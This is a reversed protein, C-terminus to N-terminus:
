QNWDAIANEHISNSHHGGTETAKEVTSVHLTSTRGTMAYEQREGAPVPGVGKHGQLPSLPKCLIFTRTIPNPFNIYMKLVSIPCEHPTMLFIHVVARGINPFVHSITRPAPNQKLVM